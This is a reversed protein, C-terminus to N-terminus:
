HAPIPGFPDSPVSFLNSQHKNVKNNSPPNLAKVKVECTYGSLNTVADFTALAAANDMQTLPVFLDTQDPPFGDLRDGTGIDFEVVITENPDTCEFEVSYKTAAQDDVGAYEWDVAVGDGLIADTALIATVDTPAPLPDHKANARAPFIAVVFFAALIMCNIQKLKKM